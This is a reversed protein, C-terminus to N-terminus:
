RPQRTLLRPKLGAKGVVDLAYVATGTLSKEDAVILVETAPSQLAKEALAKEDILPVVNIDARRRRHIILSM